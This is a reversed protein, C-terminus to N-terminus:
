AQFYNTLVTNKLTKTENLRLQRNFSRLLGEIKHSVLDDLGDIYKNITLVVKLVECWTPLPETDVGEDVDDGGNIKINERAKVTSQGRNPETQTRPDQARVQVQVNLNPELLHHARVHVFHEHENHETWTRVINTTLFTIKNVLNLTWFFAAAVRRWM